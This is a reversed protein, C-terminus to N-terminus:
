KKKRGFLGSLLGGGQQNGKDAGKAQAKSANAKGKKAAAQKRSAPQEGASLRAQVTQATQNEPDFALAQKAYIRAMTAQGASLYLSALCAHCPASQPHSTIAERLELIGRSYDRQEEFEKARRIYSDIVSSRRSRASVSRAANQSTKSATNEAITAAPKSVAAASQKKSRILYAANLESLEGIVSEVKGLDSFQTKAIKEVAAAYDAEVANSMMLQKARDSALSVLDPSAALQQQKMGLLIDHEKALKDQNLVEYAPNVRKSLLQGALQRQMESAEGLSDPHLKRAVKLYRKRVEQPDATLPFGLVAHHDIMGLQFLGANTTM